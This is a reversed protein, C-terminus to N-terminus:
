GLSLRDLDPASAHDNHLKITNAGAKLDVPLSTTYRTNNGAGDGKM